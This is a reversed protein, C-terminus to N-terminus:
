RRPWQLAAGAPSRTSRPTSGSSTTWSARSAHSLRGGMALQTLLARSCKRLSSSIRVEKTGESNAEAADDAPQEDDGTAHEDAEGEEESLNGNEDDATDVSCDDEHGDQLQRDEGDGVSASRDDDADSQADMDEEDVRRQADGEEAEEDGGEGMRCPAEGEGEQVALADGDELPPAQDLEPGEAEGDADAVAAGRDAEEPANGEADGDAAHAHGDQHEILQQREDAVEAHPPAELEDVHGAPAHGEDEMGAADEERNGGAEREEVVPADDEDALLPAEGDELDGVLDAVPHEDNHPALHTEDHPAAEHVEPGMGDNGADAVPAGGDYADLANGDDDDNIVHAHGHEYAEAEAEAQGRDQGDMHHERDNDLHDQDDAEFHEYLEKHVPSAEGDEQHHGNQQEEHQADDVEELAGVADGDQHRHEPMILEDELVAM